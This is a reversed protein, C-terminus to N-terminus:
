EMQAKFRRYKERTPLDGGSGLGPKDGRELHLLV